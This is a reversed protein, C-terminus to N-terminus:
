RCANGHAHPLLPLLLVASMSHQHTPRPPAYQCTHTHTHEYIWVRKQWQLNKSSVRNSVRAGASSGPLYAISTCLGSPVMARWFAIRVYMKSTGDDGSNLMREDVSSSSASSHPLAPLTASCVSYSSRSGLMTDTVGHTDGKQPVCIVSDPLCMERFQVMLTPPISTLITRWSMSYQSSALFSVSFAVQVTTNLLGASDAATCSCNLVTSKSTRLGRPPRVISSPM